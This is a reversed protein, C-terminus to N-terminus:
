GKVVSYGLLEFMLAGRVTGLVVKGKESGRYLQQVVPSYDWKQWLRGDWIFSECLASPAWEWAM